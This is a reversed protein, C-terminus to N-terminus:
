LNFSFGALMQIQRTYYSDGATINQGAELNTLGNQYRADFVLGVVSGLPYKVRLDFLLGSDSSARNAGAYSSSINTGTITTDVNGRGFNFYYGAGISIHPDFIIRLLIPVQISKTYEFLTNGLSQRESKQNQYLLGSEIEFVPVLFETSLFAGYALAADGTWQLDGTGTVKESPASYDVGGVLTFEWAQASSRAFGGLSFLCCFLYCFLFRLNM